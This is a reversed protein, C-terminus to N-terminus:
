EGKNRFSTLLGIFVETLMKEIDEQTFKCVQTAILVAIGHSYIWLHQYLKEAIEKNINHSTTISSLVQNYNEEVNMLVQHINPVDKAEKMFMLQFLKPHEGAFRIYAKGAGKFPYREKLGQNLYERYIGYAKKMVEALVEEMSQFITFIPRPSSGLKEGLSRATLADGGRLEVIKLACDVIEQKKFKAIPPM